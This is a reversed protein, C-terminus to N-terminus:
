DPPRAARISLELSDEDLCFLRAEFNRGERALPTLYAAIDRRLYGALDTRGDEPFTALVSMADRDAKNWPEPQLTFRISELWARVRDETGSLGEVLARRRGEALATVSRRRMEVVAGGFNDGVLPLVLREGRDFLYESLKAKVEARFAPLDRADIGPVAFDYLEAWIDGAGDTIKGDFLEVLRATKDADFAWLWYLAFILFLDREALYRLLPRHSKLKGSRGVATGAGIFDGRLEAQRFAPYRYLFALVSEEPAGPLGMRRVTPHSASAEYVPPKGFHNQFYLETEPAEEIFDKARARAKAAAGDGSVVGAFDFAGSQSESFLEVYDKEFQILYIAKASMAEGEWVPETYPSVRSM